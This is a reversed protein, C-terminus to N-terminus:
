WSAHSNYFTFRGAVVAQTPAASAQATPTLQSTPQATPLPAAPTVPTCGSLLLLGGLLAKWFFQM